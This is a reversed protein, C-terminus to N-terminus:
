DHVDSLSRLALGLAVVFVPGQGAAESKHVARTCALAALPNFLEVKGGLLGALAEQVVTAQAMGGCLLIRDLPPGSQRTGHYRVTELVRNALTSCAEQVAPALNQLAFRAEDTGALAGAITPRPSGTSKCVQNIIADAAYPIDRVFPLGDDSIIALNTFVNGVNLVLATEGPKRIHCAELCNLLALGNVDVMVCHAGGSRCQEQVQQIGTNKAAAFVGVVREPGQPEQRRRTKKVGPGRLVQHAVTSESMEFSCVQTAELEVASALQKIPIAPFDFTRVAVDPGSLGCVVEAPSEHLMHLCRWIALTTKDGPVTDKSSAHELTAQALGTVTIHKGKRRIRAAKVATTGIDLGILGVAKLSFGNLLTTRERERAM